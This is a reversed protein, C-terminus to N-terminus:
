GALVIGTQATGIKQLAANVASAATHNPRVVMLVADSLRAFAQAENGGLAPPCDVIVLDASQRLHAMLRAMQPSSVISGSNQVPESACLMLANSRPDKVFSRSLQADGSLTEVIGGVVRDYGVARGMAAQALDGDVVVVRWGARAAVRALGMAINTKGPEPTASTVAIVRPRAGTQPRAIRHMISALSQTFASQPWDIVYDAARLASADPVQALVPVRPILNVPRVARVRQPVYRRVTQTPWAFREAALAALLGLLIGAPISAMFIMMRKPSSPATPVPAPSLMRADPLQIAEQDQTERLRTVFAEYMSRTSVANAELSKLKVKVLNQNSALRETQSLSGQLSNLQARAVDVDNAMSGAVRNVEQAIKNELDRRQQEAAIRKPHKPGYRATIDAEQQILSAEQARLAVIVPSAVAQSVDGANGSEGLQKVRDYTAQKEALDTRAAVVQSNIAGLQQDVLSTGDGIENINNQAKYEQVAAEAAQVQRGLEAVRNSLWQTTKQAADYKIRLQDQVYADVFANAIRAAKQPDRSSFSVTFTTSLGQANVWLHSLVADVVADRNETPGSYPSLLKAPHMLSSVAGGLGSGLAPNFEPDDYLKQKEVVDAALDRSTLIQVQNQLSAADMPLDSLVPSIGALNNKRQDLMVVASTSYMTPLMLLVLVTIGVVALAVLAILRRRARAVRMFDAVGFSGPQGAPITGSASM